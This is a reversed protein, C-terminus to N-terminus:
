KKVKKRFSKVSDSEYISILLDAKYLEVSLSDILKQKIQRSQNIVEVKYPQQPLAPQNKLNYLSFIVSIVITAIAINISTNAKKIATKSSERSEVLELYDIYKKAADGNLFTKIDLIKSQYKNISEILEKAFEEGHKKKVYYVCYKYREYVKSENPRSPTSYNELFWQMFTCEAYKTLKSGLRDELKQILEHYTVGKAENEIGIEMAIVYRNRTKSVM